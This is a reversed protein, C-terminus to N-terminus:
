TPKRACTLIADRITDYRIRTGAWGPLGPFPATLRTHTHTNTMTVYCYQLCMLVSCGDTAQKMKVRLCLIAQVQSFTSASQALVRVFRRNEFVRGSARVFALFLVHEPFAPRITVRPQTPDLKETKPPNPQTTAM